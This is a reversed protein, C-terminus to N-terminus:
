VCLKKGRTSVHIHNGEKAVADILAMFHKVMELKSNDNEQKRQGQRKRSM